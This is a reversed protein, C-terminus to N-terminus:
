NSYKVLMSYSTVNIPAGSAHLMAFVIVVCRVERMSQKVQAVKTCKLEILLLSLQLTKLLVTEQWM